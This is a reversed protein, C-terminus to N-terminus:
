SLKMHFSGEGSAEAFRTTSNKGKDKSRYMARDAKEILEDMPETGEMLGISLTMHFTSGNGSFTLANACSRIREAVLFADEAGTDDLIVVFEDGGFRIMENTNRVTSKICAALQRLVEDGVLHGYRDNIAKFDDVDIFLLSRRRASPETEQGFKEWLYQKNFMGTLSDITSKELLQEKEQEMRQYALTLDTLLLLKTTGREEEEFPYQTLELYRIQGNAAYEVPHRQYDTEFRYDPLYNTVLDGADLNEDQLIQRGNNNVSVIRGYKNIILIGESANLFLNRYIYDSRLNLLRYRMISIFIAFVFIAIAYYMLYLEDEMHFVAPLVYESFVSVVLALGIGFLIYRLQARQRGDKTRILQQFVLFLAYIAPLSFTFSMLPAVVPTTLRWFTPDSYDIPYLYRIVVTLTNLGLALYFLWDLQKKLLRYVFYLFTIALYMMSLWYVTKAILSVLSGDGFSNLYNLLMWILINSLFVLFSQNVKDHSRNLFVFTWIFMMLGYIFVLLVMQLM